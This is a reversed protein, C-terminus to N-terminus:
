RAESHWGEAETNFKSVFNRVLIGEVFSICQDISSTSINEMSGICASSHDIIVTLDLVAEIMALRHLIKVDSVLCGSCFKITIKVTESM